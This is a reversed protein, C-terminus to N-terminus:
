PRIQAGPSAPSGPAGPSADLAGADPRCGPASAARPPVALGALRQAAALGADLIEDCGARVGDITPHVIQDPTLGRGYLTSGDPEVLRIATFRIQYGGPADFTAILGSTGATPEGILTALHNDRLLALITEVVSTSQGDVLAIVPAALRPSSPYVSRHVPAYAPRGLSPLQPLQWTLEEVPHDTLHSVAALGTTSYGRFDFILARAGTLEPLRAVWTVADLHNFDVYIVGPALETGPWPRAPRAVQGYHGESVLPMARELYAGGPTRLRVQRVAMVPGVGLRVATLYAHMGETAASVQAAAREYAVRAPVGDIAVLESGLPIDSVYETARSTVLIQDGFRRLRIPLVGGRATRTNSPPAHGGPPAALVHRPADPVKLLLAHGDHLAALLHRLAIWTEAPENSAAVEELAPALEALWDIHQDQLYPHFISLTGWTAAVTALRQSLPGAAVPARQRAPVAPLTRAASAWVAIPLQIRIASGIDEVLLDREAVFARDLPNRALTACGGAACRGVRWTYLDTPGDTHWASAAPDIRHRVGDACTFSLAELTAGGRGDVQLGLEIAQTEPSVQIPLVVGGNRTLPWLVTSVQQGALSARVVLDVTGTADPRRVVADVRASRCRGPAALPVSILESVTVAQEDDRGERFAAYRTTGAAGYRRWRALHTAGAPRDMVVAQDGLPGDLTSFTATPAIAAFLARLEALLAAQDPAGRVREIAAPLFVDWDLAAAQDSPHLYRVLAVARALTAVSALERPSRAGSSAAPSPAAPAAKGIAVAVAGCVLCVVAIWAWGRNRM